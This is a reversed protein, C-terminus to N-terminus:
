RRDAPNAAWKQKSAGAQDRREIGNTALVSTGAMSRASEVLGSREFSPLFADDTCANTALFAPPDAYRWLPEPLPQSPRAAAIATGV